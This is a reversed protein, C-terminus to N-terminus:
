LAARLVGALKSPTAAVLDPSEPAPSQKYGWAGWVTTAVFISLTFDDFREVRLRSSACPQMNSVPSMTHTLAELPTLM